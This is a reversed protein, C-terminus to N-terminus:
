SISGARVETKLWNGAIAPASLYFGAALVPASIWYLCALTRLLVRAADVDGVATTRAVERNIAPAFGLDLIQLVAQLTIYFGILGYAEIGLTSLYIPTAAIMLSANWVSSAVALAAARRRSM